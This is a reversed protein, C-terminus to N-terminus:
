LNFLPTKTVMLYFLAIAGSFGIYGLGEWWRRYVQYKKDVILNHLHAYDTLQKMKIQLWVVPLWAMGVVAYIVYVNLLWPTNWQWGIHQMLWLGSLPQIIVTPLTLYWDLHVVM